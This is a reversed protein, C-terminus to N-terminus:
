FTKSLRYTDEDFHTTSIEIITSDELAFLQHIDGPSVRHVDGESMKVVAIDELIRFEGERSFKALLSGSLVYFTEDKLKHYQLSICNDKKIFLIKGCYLNNNEIIKEWGWDKEVFKVQGFM